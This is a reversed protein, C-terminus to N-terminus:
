FFSVKWKDFFLQKLCYIGSAASKGGEAFVLTELDSVFLGYPSKVRLLDLTKM